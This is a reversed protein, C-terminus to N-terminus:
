VKHWVNGASVAIKYEAIFRIAVLIKMGHIKPIIINSGSFSYSAMGNM